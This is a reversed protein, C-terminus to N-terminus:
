PTNDKVVINGQEIPAIGGFPGGPLPCPLPAGSLIVLTAQDPLGGAVVDNDTVGLIFMEFNGTDQRRIEGTIDARNGAVNVCDVRGVVGAFGSPAPADFHIQGWADLATGHGTFNVKIETGLAQLRFAGSAFDRPGASATAPLLALGCLAGVTAPWVPRM